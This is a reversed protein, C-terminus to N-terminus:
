AAPGVHVHSGVAIDDDTGEPLILPVDPDHLQRWTRPGRAVSGVIPAATIAQRPSRNSWAPRVTSAPVLARLSEPDHWAGM